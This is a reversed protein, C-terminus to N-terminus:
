QTKAAVVKKDAESKPSTSTSATAPAKAITKVASSPKSPTAAAAKKAVAQKVQAQQPTSVPAVAATATAPKLNGCKRQYEQNARDLEAMKSLSTRYVSVTKSKGEGAKAVRDTIGDKRLSDIKSVLSVCAPDVAPAKATKQADISSTTLMSGSLGGDNACATLCLSASASLIISSSRWM